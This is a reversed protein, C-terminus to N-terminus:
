IYQSLTVPIKIIISNCYDVVFFEIWNETGYDTFNCFLRFRLLVTSIYNLLWYFSCNKSVFFCLEIGYLLKDFIVSYVGGVETNIKQSKLKSTLEWLFHGSGQSRVRPDGDSFQFRGFIWCLLRSIRTHHSTISDNKLVHYVCKQSKM